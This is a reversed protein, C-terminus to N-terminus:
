RVKSKRFLSEMSVYMKSSSVLLRNTTSTNLAGGLHSLWDEPSKDMFPPADSTIWTLGKLGKKLTLLSLLTQDGYQIVFDPLNKQGSPNPDDSVLMRNFCCNKWETVFAMTEPTKRWISFSAQMQPTEYWRPEACGFHELTDVRAWKSIPGHWPAVVGPICDQKERDMWHIFPDLSTRLLLVKM